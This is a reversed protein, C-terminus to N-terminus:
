APLDLSDRLDKKVDKYHNILKGAVIVGIIIFSILIWKLISHEKLFVAIVAEGTIMKAATWALVGAGLYIISPFQNILKILMTSGWVMIPVSIILGLIVLIPDGHAAGAVAIVNDVGMAADAIIITRIAAIISSKADIEHEKEEILLKVSIWILLLGGILHLWPLDLLYVVLLTAIIRITIAGTTGWLIVRKQNKKPLNRAAMGIVIANDGALVLDILIIVGLAIFFDVSLFEMKM